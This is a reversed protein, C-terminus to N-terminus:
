YRDRDRSRDPDRFDEPVAQVDIYPHDFRSTFTLTFDTFNGVDIKSFGKQKNAFSSPSSQNITFASGEDVYFNAGGAWVLSRGRAYYYYYRNSLPKKYAAITKGISIKWWGESFWTGNEIYGIALYIEEKSNNIFRLQGFSEKSIFVLGFFISLIFKM